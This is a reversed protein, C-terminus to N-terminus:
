QAVYGGDAVLAHGTVFSSADSCLWAITQAIEQPQGMRKVPHADAIQQYAETGPAAHLGRETVMPTEIFGPCVANVRIGDTAMDLAAVKSLGVVGHKSATYAPTTAFGVIGLISALNVISGGGGQRQMQAGEHTVGLFVATLNLAIVKDWSERPYETVPALVGETGANNVACDLRGFAEVARAVMAEVDAEDTVDMRMVEAEGQRAGLMRRTELAGDENIDALLVRAGEQALALATERGIGSGAGTVLAAKGDLRGVDAERAAM